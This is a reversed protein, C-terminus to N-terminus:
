KAKRKKPPATLALALGAVTIKARQAVIENRLAITQGARIIIGRAPYKTGSTTLSIRSSLPIISLRHGKYARYTIDGNKITRIEQHDALFRLHFGRKARTLNRALMLTGLLHDTEGGRVNWGFVTIDTIGNAACLDLALEADTKKKDAPFLHIEIEKLFGRKIRPTSDLDSIWHDPRIALKQLAALGGDVAILLPRPSSRRVLGRILRYDDKVYLGNLFIFATGAM